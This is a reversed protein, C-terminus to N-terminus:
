GIPWRVGDLHEVSADIALQPDDDVIELITPLCIDARRLLAAISEYPVLGTGVQAHQFEDSSTDAAYLFSLHDRLALVAEPHEGGFHGNAFDYGISVADWGFTDFFSRLDSARYLYSLPHNKVVLEVSARRAVPILIDLSRSFCDTLIPMPAPFVPNSKGPNIVVGKANWSAALEIAKAVVSCSHQRMEPVTSSLNVDLNPQNLTLIQLSNRAVLSEIEQRGANGDVSPWFHGPVLMIEFRRYGLDALLQLCEHARFSQTFSYTDVGYAARNLQPSAIM